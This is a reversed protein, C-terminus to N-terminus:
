QCNVSIGFNLLTNVQDMDGRWAAEYLLTKKHELSHTMSSNLHPCRDLQWQKLGGMRRVQRETKSLSISDHLDLLKWAIEMQEAM